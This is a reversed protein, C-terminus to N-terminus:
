GQGGADILEFAVWREDNGEFRTRRCRVLSGAPFEWVEDDDVQPGVLLFADGVPRAKVPRWVVVAENVLQVYVDVTHPAEPM